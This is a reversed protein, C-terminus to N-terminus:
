ETHGGQQRERASWASDHREKRLSEGTVVYHVTEAINKAHDGVREINKACFLLDTGMTINRADEMMYTLLERFLSTYLADLEHDRALVQAASHINMSAYSAVVEDLLERAVKALHEVSITARKLRMEEDILAVRKAINKALDGIRELDSAVRIATVIRRLDSAFPQRKAIMLIAQDEIEDELRNVRLDADIVQAGLRRDGTVLAAVAESLREGVLRGMECVKASLAELQQEYSHVIHGSEAM